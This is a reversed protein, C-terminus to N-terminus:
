TLTNVECTFTPTEKLTGRQPIRGAQQLAGSLEHAM